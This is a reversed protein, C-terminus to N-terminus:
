FHAALFRQTGVGTALDLFTGQSGTVGGIAILDDLQEILRQGGLDDAYQAILAVVKHCGTDAKNCLAESVQGM